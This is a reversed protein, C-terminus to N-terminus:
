PMQDSTRGKWSSINKPPKIAKFVTQPAEWLVVSSLDYSFMQTNLNPGPRAPQSARVSGRYLGNWSSLYTENIPAFDRGWRLRQWWMKKSDAGPDFKRWGSICWVSSLSRTRHRFSMIWFIRKSFFLCIKLFTGNRPGIWYFIKVWLKGKASNLCQLQSRWSISGIQAM